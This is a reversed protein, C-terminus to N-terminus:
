AFFSEEKIVKTQQLNFVSSSFIVDCCRLAIQFCCWSYLGENNQATHRFCLIIMDDVYMKLLNEWHWYYYSTCPSTIVYQYHINIPTPCVRIILEYQHCTFLVSQSLGDPLMVGIHMVIPWQDTIMRTVRMVWGGGHCVIPCSCENWGARSWISMQVMRKLM